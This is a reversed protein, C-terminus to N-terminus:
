KMSRRKTDCVLCTGKSCFKRYVAQLLHVVGNFDYGPLDNVSFTQAFHADDPALRM